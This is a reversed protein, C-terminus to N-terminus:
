AFFARTPACVVKWRTCVIVIAADILDHGGAEKNEFCYLWIRCGGNRKDGVREIQLKRRAKSM